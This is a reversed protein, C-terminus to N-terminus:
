LLSEPDVNISVHPPLALLKALLDTSIWTSRDLRLLAHMIVKKNVTEIFAPFVLPKWEELQQEIKKMEENVSERTGKVTLKILTSFPPYSLRKREEIEERYFDMLNGKLAYNFLRQDKARTQVICKKQTLSRIRLLINTIKENIRFDPIAFLSDITAVASNEVPKELYTLAMETGLLISGPSNYFDRMVALAQKHTNVSDKDLRFLAIDPFISKIAEQILEIGIGLTTLKWSNCVKCREEASRREGCRHCLFFQAGARRHLTIPASCKNCIVTTGCDGCVTMPSLGRRAAFIFTNENNLHSESILEQIEDSLIRFEPTALTKYKKLDIIKTDSTSLSRFKLPALETISHNKSRWITETRLLQDGFILKAHIRRAYYESLTRIDIYPRVHSKYGSANEREVIITGIDNRAISLFTGTGIILIPHPDSVIKKWTSLIEKKTMGANVIFTYEEIGKSLHEFVRKTDQITPLCFFVSKKRAFQERILSKYHALREDEDAQLAYPEDFEAQDDLLSAPSLMSRERMKKELHAANSEDANHEGEFLELNELIIKPIISALVSGLTGAFYRATDEAADIFEKRFLGVARSKGIKKMSFSSNKLEAKLSDAPEIKVVLAAMDSSRVPVNVVSGPEIHTTSFYSLSEKGIGRGIPVVHIIYM